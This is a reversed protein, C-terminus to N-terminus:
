QNTMFSLQADFVDAFNNDNGVFGWCPRFKPLSSTIKKVHEKLDDINRCLLYRGFIRFSLVGSITLCLTSSINHMDPAVLLLAQM